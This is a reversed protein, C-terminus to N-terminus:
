NILKFSLENCPIYSGVGFYGVESVVESKGTAMFYDYNKGKLFLAQIGQDGSYSGGGDM